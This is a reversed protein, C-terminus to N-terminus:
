KKSKRAVKKPPQAELSVWLDLGLARSAKALTLFTFSTDKPDLLRNVLTRSTRMRKALVTRNIRASVMREGIQDALVKKKTLLEVDERIGEEDLWDTFDDGINKAKM